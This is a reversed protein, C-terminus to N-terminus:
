NPPTPATRSLRVPPTARCGSARVANHPTLPPPRRAYPPKAILREMASVALGYRQALPSLIVPGLQKPDGALVLRASCRSVVGGCWWMVAVLRACADAGSPQALGSSLVAACGSAREKRLIIFLLTLAHGAPGPQLHAAWLLGPAHAWAGGVLACRADRTLLGAVAALSLPEEAHGAEDIMVVGFHGAEVGLAHLKAAMLCTAVVVRKSKVRPLLSPALLFAGEGARLCRPQLPSAPSVCRRAPPRGAASQHAACGASSHQEGEDYNTCPKLDPAGRMALLDEAARSYACVRLVDSPPVQAAVRECVCPPLLFLARQHRAHASVGAVDTTSGVLGRGAALVGPARGGRSARVGLMMVRLALQDAAWNSPACLLLRTAPETAWVQARRPCLVHVAAASAFPLFLCPRHPSCRPARTGAQGGRHAHRDQGHGAPWLHPLAAARAGQVPHRAGTHAFRCRVCVRSPLESFGRCQQASHLMGCQMARTCVCAGRDEAGRQAAPGSREVCAAPRRLSCAPWLFTHGQPLARASPPSLLAARPRVESPLRPVPGPHPDQGPPLGAAGLLTAPHLANLSAKTLAAQSGCPPVCTPM